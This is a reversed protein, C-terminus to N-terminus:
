AEPCRDDGCLGNPPPFSYCTQCKAWRSSAGPEGDPEVQAENFPITFGTQRIKIHLSESIQRQFGGRPPFKKTDLIDAGKPKAKVTFVAKSEDKGNFINKWKVAYFPAGSLLVEHGSALAGPLDWCALHAKWLMHPIEPDIERSGESQRTLAGGFDKYNQAWSFSFGNCPFIAYLAGARDKDVGFREAMQVDSTTFLSNRRTAAFGNREMWTSVFEQCTDPTDRPIRKPRPWALYADERRMFAGRFLLHKTDRVVALYDSCDREIRKWLDAFKINGPESAPEDKAPDVILFTELAESPVHHTRTPAHGPAHVTIVRAWWDPFWPHDRMVDHVLNRQPSDCILLIADRERCLRLADDLADSVKIKGQWVDTFEGVVEGHPHQAVRAQILSRQEEATPAIEQGQTRVQRLYVVFRKLDSM